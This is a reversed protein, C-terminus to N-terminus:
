AEAEMKTAVITIVRNNDTIEEAVDSLEWGEFKATEADSYAVEFGTTNGEKLANAISDMTIAPDANFIHLSITPAISKGDVKKLRRRNNVADIKIERKDKLILKM